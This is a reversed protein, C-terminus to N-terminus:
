PSRSIARRLIGSGRSFLYPFFPSKELCGVEMGIYGAYSGPGSPSYKEGDRNVNKGHLNIRICPSADSGHLIQMWNSSSSRMHTTEGAEDGARGRVGAREPRHPVGDAVPAGVALSMVQVLVAGDGVATQGDDVGGQALLGHDAGVAPVHQCIVALYVVVPEQPVLQDGGAMSEEGIGIGLDHEVAIHLPPGAHQFLQAAHEGEDDPVFLALLQEAGAVGEADLGEIVGDHPVQEEEAGLGLAEEGVGTEPLLEVGGRQLEIERELIGGEVFGEEFAHEAQERAM